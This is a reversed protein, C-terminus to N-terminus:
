RKDHILVVLTEGESEWRAAAHFKLRLILSSRTM